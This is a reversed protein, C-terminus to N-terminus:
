KGFKVFQSYLLGTATIADGLGVTKSPNKCVLVPSLYYLIGDRSWETWGDVATLLRKSLKTDTASIHFENPLLVKFLTSNFTDVGCSQLGAIQAGAMVAEKNHTWPGGEVTAIIHFSLTHLHVRTLVASKESRSSFTVMLWHLLDPIHDIGPKSPMDNVFPAKSSRAIFLLEQENLGLSEVRPFLVEAMNRCFQVNGVTALEWHVPASITELITAADRLRQVWFEESQAELMHAGSLVVLDPSFKSVAEEIHELAAMKSNSVDHSFIVRNACFSKLEGWKEESSYELIMHVEEEAHTSFTPTLIDRNLLRRLKSGIVGILVVQFLM